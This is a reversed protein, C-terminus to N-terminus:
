DRFGVEPRYIRVTAKTGEGPKSDIFLGHGLLDAAQRSLALGIGTSKRNEHGNWGTYGWDFIRPIDEPRIGIGTDEIEIDVAEEIDRVRIRICGNKTYKAANSLLQELIFGLWKKDTVILYDALKLELKLDPRLLLTSNRKIVQKLIKETGYSKILFDNGGEQFRQYWLTSDVYQEIKYLERGVARVDVPEEQLLLQIGAIPTKIQHAWLGYYRKMDAAQEEQRAILSHLREEQKVLLERYEEGLAEGGKPLYAPDIGEATKAKQLLSRDQYFRLGRYGESFLFFTGGMIFIYLVPEAPLDYVVWIFLNTFILLLFLVINGTERKIFRM